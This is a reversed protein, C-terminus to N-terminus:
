RELLLLFDFWDPKDQEWWLKGDNDIHWYCAGNGLEEDEDDYLCIYGHKKNESM